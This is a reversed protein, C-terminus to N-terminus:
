DQRIANVDLTIQVREGLYQAGADMAANWKLDFDGRDIATTATFAAVSKGSFPHTAQGHYVTDLVVQKTTDKITLDGRIKWHQDDVKQVGTSRFTIQPHKEADFFDPDFMRGTLHDNLTDVSKVDIAAEASGQEPHAEDVTIAGEVQRFRAKYISITMYKLGFEVTSHVPDITWTSAATQTTVLDEKPM